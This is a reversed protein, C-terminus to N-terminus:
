DNTIDPLINLDIINYSTSRNSPGDQHSSEVIEFYSPDRQISSLNNLNNKKKSRLIKFKDLWIIPESFNFLLEKIKKKESLRKKNIPWEMYEDQLEKILEKMEDNDGYVM